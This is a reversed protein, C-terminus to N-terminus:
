LNLIDVMPQFAHQTHDCKVHCLKTVTLYLQIFIQLRAYIPVYLLRTFNLSFNGVTQSFIDSFKLPLSKKSECQVHGDHQRSGVDSM